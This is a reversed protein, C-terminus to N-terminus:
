RGSSQGGPVEERAQGELRELEERTRAVIRGDALRVMVVEATKGDPLQFSM